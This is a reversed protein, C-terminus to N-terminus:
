SNRLCVVCVLGVVSLACCCRSCSAAYRPSRPSSCPWRTRMPWTRCRSGVYLHSIVSPSSWRVSCSVRAVICIGEDLGGTGHRPPESVSHGAHAFFYAVALPVLRLSRDLWWWWRCLRVRGHGSRSRMMFMASRRRVLCRLSGFPPLLVVTVKAAASPDRGSASLSESRFGCSATVTAYRKALSGFLDPSRHVAAVRFETCSSRSTLELVLALPSHAALLTARAVAACRRPRCRRGLRAQLQWRRERDRDRLRRGHVRPIATREGYTRSGHPFQRAGQWRRQRASRHQGTNRPHTHNSAPM